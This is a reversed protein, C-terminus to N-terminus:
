TADLLSSVDDATLKCKYIRVDDLGGTFFYNASGFRGIYNAQNTAFDNRITSAVTVDTGNVYLRATSTSRDVVAAVHVWQGTPVAGIGSSANAAVTGNNTEFILKRDGTQYTNVYFAFGSYNGGTKNAFITQINTASANLNIWASITFQNGLDWTGVSVAQNTGNLTLSGGIKGTANWTPGNLLTGNRGGISDGATSGSGENLAWRDSMTKGQLLVPTGTLSLTGVSFNTQNGALDRKQLISWSAPVTFNTPTGSINWLIRGTYGGPRSLEVIWTGDNQAVRSKITAGTLWRNVQSWAIGNPSFNDWDLYNPGSTTTGYTLKTKAQSDWTYWVQNSVGNVWNTLYFRAITGADTDTDGVKDTNGETNWLPVHGLGYSDMTSRFAQLKGAHYEPTRTPDVYWVYDHTSIIDVYQGGGKALFENLKPTNTFNPSLVKDDPDNFISKAAATMEILGPITGNATMPGTYFRTALDTVDIENWIEWYNIYAGFEQKMKTLYNTWYTLNSPASTSGSEGGVISPSAPNESAVSAAWDPPMGLTMIFQMNPNLARWQGLQTKLADIQPQNWNGQSTAEFDMWRTHTDWLRVMGLQTQNVINQRVGSDDYGAATGGLNGANFTQGMFTSPIPTTNVPANNVSETVDTLSFDDMIVTGVSWFWLGVTVYTNIERGGRVTVKQWESGVRIRYTGLVPNGSSSSRMTLEVDIGGPTTSRVWGSLEYVKQGPVTINQGFLTTSPLTAPTTISQASTGGHVNAAGTVQALTYTGGGPAAWGPALNNSYTGEFSPNSFVSIEPGYLQSTQVSTYAGAADSPRHWQLEVQGAGSLNRYEVRIKYKRNAQMQQLFTTSASTTTVPTNNDAQSWTDIIATGWSGANSEALYVRMGGDAVTRFLYPLSATAAEITEIQGEWRVSYTNDTSLGTIPAVGSTYNMKVEPDVRTGAATGTLDNSEYYSAPLGIGSSTLPRYLQATPVTVFSGQGPRQWELLLRGGGGSNYYELTIVYQKGAELTITGTNYTPSHSTLNSIVPTAIQANGDTVWLRVGDDSYTRFTYTGGEVAQIRGSWRASYVNDNAIGSVPTAGSAWTFDITPNVQTVSVGTYDQSDYYTAALGTGTTLLTRRELTEVVARALRTSASESKRPTRTQMADNLSTVLHRM